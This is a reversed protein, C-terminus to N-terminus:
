NFYIAGSSDITYTGETNEKMYGEGDFMYWHGDIKELDNVTCTYGKHLYWWKPHEISKELVWGDTLYRASIWGEDPLYYWPVGDVFAKKTPYVRDGNKLYGVISGTSPFDRINLSSDVSVLLGKQGTAIDYTDLPIEQADIADWDLEIFKDGAAKCVSTTYEKMHYIGGGNAVAGSVSTNGGNTWFRSGDESVKIVNETHNFRSGNWHLYIRGVVPVSYVFTKNEKIELSLFTEYLSQCSIFWTQHFLKQAKQLGLIRVYSMFQWIACWYSGQYNPLGLEAAEKWMWVVNDKGAGKELEYLYSIGSWSKELYKNWSAQLSIVENIIEQKTM